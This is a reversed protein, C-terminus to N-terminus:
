KAECEAIWEPTPDFEGCPWNYAMLNELAGMRRAISDTVQGDGLLAELLAAEIPCTPWSGDPPAGKKCQVCNAEMWDSYQAVNSFPRM